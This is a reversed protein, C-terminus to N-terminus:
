SDLWNDNPDIVWRYSDAPKTQQGWKSLVTKQRRNQELKRSIQDPDWGQLIKEELASVLDAHEPAAVLDHM